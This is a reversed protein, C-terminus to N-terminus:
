SSVRSNPESGDKQVRYLKLCYHESITDRICIEGFVLPIVLLRYVWSVSTILLYMLPLAFLVPEVIRM